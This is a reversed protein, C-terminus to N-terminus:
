NSSLFYMFKSIVNCKYYLKTSYFKRYSIVNICLKNLYVCVYIYILLHSYFNIIIFIINDYFHLIDNVEM